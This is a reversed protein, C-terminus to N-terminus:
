WVERIRSVISRGQKAVHNVYLQQTAASRTPISSPADGAVGMTAARDLMLAAVGMVLAERAHDPLMLADGAAAVVPQLPLYPIEIRTVRRWHHSEGALFLKEGQVYGCLPRPPANAGTPDILTFTAREERRGDGTTLYAYGHDVHHSPPLPIGQTVPVEVPNALDLYPQGAADYKVLWGSETATTPTSGTVVGLHGDVEYTNQEIVYLTTTDPTTEWPETIQVTDATNSAIERVQGAGTGATLRVRQGIYLDIAWARSADTLSSAGAGTAASEASLIAADDAEEALAGAGSASRELSLTGQVLPAGTASGAGVSAREVTPLMAIAWTRVLYKPNVQHTALLLQYAVENVMNCAVSTPIIARTFQPHKNRAEAIIAGATLM